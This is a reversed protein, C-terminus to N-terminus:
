SVSRAGLLSHAVWETRLTRELRRHPDSVVDGIYERLAQVRPDLSETSGSAGFPSQSVWQNKAGRETICVSFKPAGASVRAHLRSRDPEHAFGGDLEAFSPSERVRRVELGADSFLSALHILYYAVPGGGEDLRSKWNADRANWEFQPLRWDIEVETHSRPSRLAQVIM